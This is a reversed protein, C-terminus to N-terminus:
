QFNEHKIRGQRMADRFLRCNEWYHGRKACYNCVGPSRSASRRSKADFQVRKNPGPSTRRNRPGPSQHRREASRSEPRYPRDYRRRVPSEYDSGRNRSNSRYASRSKSHPRYPRGRSHSRSADRFHHDPRSDRGRTPSQSPSRRSIYVQQMEDALADHSSKRNTQASINNTSRKQLSFATSHPMATTPPQAAIATKLAETITADRKVRVSQQISEPLGSIFQSLIMEQDTIKAEHALSSLRNNFMTVTEAPSMKAAAFQRLLDTRNQSPGFAQLFSTKLTDLTIFSDENVQYWERANDVLTLKFKRIKQDEPVELEECYDNFLLWHMNAKETPLGKFKPASLGHKFVVRVPQANPDGEPM